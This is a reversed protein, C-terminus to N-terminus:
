QHANGLEDSSVLDGAPRHETNFEFLMFPMRGLKLVEADVGAATPNEPVALRAYAM